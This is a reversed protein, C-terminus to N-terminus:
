NAEIDCSTRRLGRREKHRTEILDKNDHLYDALEELPVKVTKGDKLYVIPM